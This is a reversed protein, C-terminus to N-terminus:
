EIVRAAHFGDWIANLINRPKACDGITVIEPTHEELADRLTLDPKFGTAVVISDAALEQRGGNCEVIAGGKTIEVLKTNTLVEVKSDALLAHIALMTNANKGEPILQGAMEVITVHKGQQALHAAAESGCLGGGIVLVREGVSKTGEFLDVTSLVHGLRVGPVDPLKFQSGTAVIVVDPKHKRVLEPTVQKKLEVKVGAKEVQTSLYRILPRIDRKFDPAAALRLKGGLRDSKEWLTVKCGRAAAVRAAELGGPGGGIVLVSKKREIPTPAYEKEWGTQANVTCSLHLPNLCGENCAICPKIDDDRGDKAKKPWDPDALLPRGLAVFDAKGEEVVQRAVTPDGLKGHAIVPLKVARKVAEALAIQCGSKEYMSPIVRHWVEYCGGDVHLADVGAQELRRALELGEELRRGGPIYHDPTFKYIIPCDPGVAYRTAGILEMTLRLRGTLDGGYADTRKNWLATQFQDILYGGYGQIEIADVGAMKAMGAATAFSKVIQGIEEVTLARTSIAPNYFCPLVSASIPPIPNGELYNVRGFGATLQLVLKSDYHHMANCLEYLRGMFSSNTLRPLFHAIGGEIDTNVIAAGTIIMGTGGKARAAYFDILRRSYGFDADPLGSTGMPAMAIRNKVEMSGIKAREFLKM